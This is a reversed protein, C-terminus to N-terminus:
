GAAAKLLVVTRKQKLLVTLSNDVTRQYKIFSLPLNVEHFVELGREVLFNNYEARTVGM